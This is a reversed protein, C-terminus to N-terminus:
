EGPKIFGEPQTMYITEELDGPRFTTKVDMQKLKLDFQAVMALLMRISCHKVVPFFVENFDIGERQTFGRAM